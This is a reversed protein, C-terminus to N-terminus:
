GRTGAGPAAQAFKQQLLAALRAVRTRSSKKRPMSVPEEETLEDAEELPPGRQDTM